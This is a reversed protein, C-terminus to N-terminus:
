NAGCFITPDLAPCWPRPGKPTLIREIEHLKPPPFNALYYSKVGVKPTPVGVHPFGPDAVASSEM